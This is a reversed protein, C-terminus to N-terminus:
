THTVPSGWIFRLPSPKPLAFKTLIDSSL